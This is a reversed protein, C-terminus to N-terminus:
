KGVFRWFQQWDLEKRLRTMIVTEPSHNVSSSFEIVLLQAISNDNDKTFYDTEPAVLQRAGVDGPQSLLTAKSGHLGALYAPSARESPTMAALEAKFKNIQPALMKGMREFEREVENQMKPLQQQLMQRSLALQKEMAKAAEPNIAQMQRLLEEQQAMNLADNTNAVQAQQEALFKTRADEVNGELTQIQARLYRERSVPKWLPKQHARYVVLCDRPRGSWYVDAGDLQGVHIPKVFMPGADDKIEGGGIGYFLPLLNNVFLKVGASSEGAQKYTPHFLQIMLQAGAVPEGMQLKQGLVRHARAEVGPPPRLVHLQMFPEALETLLKHQANMVAADIGTQDLHDDSWPLWQGQSISTISETANGCAEDISMAWVLSIPCCMALLLALTTVKLRRSDVSFVSFQIRYM